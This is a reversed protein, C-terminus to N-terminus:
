LYRGTISLDMPQNQVTLFENLASQVESLTFVSIRTNKYLNIIFCNENNSQHYHLDLFNFYLMLEFHCLGLTSQFNIIHDCFRNLPIYLYSKDNYDTIAKVAINDLYYFCNFHSKKSTSVLHEFQTNHLQQLLHVKSPLAMEKKMQEPNDYFEFIFNRSGNLFLRHSTDAQNYVGSHTTKVKKYKTMKKISILLQSILNQVNPNVNKYLM